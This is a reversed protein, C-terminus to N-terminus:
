DLEGHLEEELIRLSLRYSESVEPLGLRLRSAIQRLDLGVFFRMVVIARDRPEPLRDLAFRIRLNREEIRGSGKGPAAKRPVRLPPAPRTAGNTPSRHPLDVTTNGTRRGTRRSPGRRTAPQSTRQARRAHQSM